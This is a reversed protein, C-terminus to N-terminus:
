SSICMWSTIRRSPTSVCQLTTNTRLRMKILPIQRKYAEGMEEHIRDKSMQPLESVESGAAVVLLDQLEKIDAVTAM